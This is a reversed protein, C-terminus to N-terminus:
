EATQQPQFVATTQYHPIEQLVLIVTQILGMKCQHNHLLTCIQDICTHMIKLMKFSKHESMTSLFKSYTKDCQIHMVLSQVIFCAQIVQTLKIFVNKFYKLFYLVCSTILYYDQYQQCYPYAIFIYIQQLTGLIKSRDLDNYSYTNISYKISNEQLHLTSHHKLKVCWPYKSSLQHIYIQCNRYM